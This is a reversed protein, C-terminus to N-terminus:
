NEPLLDHAIRDRYEEFVPTDGFNAGADHGIDWTLGLWDGCSGLV